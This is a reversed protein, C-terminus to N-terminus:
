RIIRAVKLVTQKGDVSTIQLLYINNSYAHTDIVAECTGPQVACLMMGSIDFLRLDEIDQSAVVKLNYNEFIVKISDDIEIDESDSARNITGFDSWQPMSEYIPASATEVHLTKQEVDMNAFVMEGLDAPLERFSYFNASSICGDFAHDDIYSVTRPVVTYAATTNQYFAYRGIAELGEPMFNLAKMASCGAFAFDHIRNLSAPLAITQLSFCYAFAGEDINLLSQPLEVGTLLSCASFTWAPLVQINCESIDASVLHSCAAFVGEGMNHISAPMVLTQLHSCGAFAADQITTLSAPFKVAALQTNQAFARVGISALQMCSSMDLIGISSCKDFAYDGIRRLTGPMEVDNLAKCGSFAFNGIKEVSSINKISVLKECGAFAGEGISKVDPSLVVTTLNPFGLFAAPPIEGAEFHTHIGLYQENRSDYSKIVCGSLDISEIAMANNNICVFDRVDMSGKIAISSFTYDGALAKELGGCEITVSKNQAVAAIVISCILLFSITKKFM